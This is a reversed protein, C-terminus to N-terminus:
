CLNIVSTGELLSVVTDYANGIKGVKLNDEIKFHILCVGCSYIEVGLKELKILSDIAEDNDCTVKVGSNVFIIKSPLLQKEVELFNKIFGTLLMCGLDRDLGISDSSVFIVKNSLTNVTEDPKPIECVFGKVIQLEFYDEVEKIDVTCGKSNAFRAVNDRSAVSDVLVTLIGEDIKELVNKTMIVPEPCQLGKADIIDSM